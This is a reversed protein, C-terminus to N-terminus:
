DKKINVKWNGDERILTIPDMEKDSKPTCKLKVTATDGDIKCEAVEFKVGKFENDNKIEGQMITILAATEKTCMKSAGEFDEAGLKEVFSLAISEPTGGGCGAFNLMAGVSAVLAVM